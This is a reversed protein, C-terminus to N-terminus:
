DRKELMAELKGLGNVGARNERTWRVARTVSGAMGMALRKAVWQNLVGTRKRILAAVLAKEAVWKGRGSLLDPSEPLGLATLAAQAITEAESEDHARAEHGRLSGNNRKPRLDAALIALIEKGFSPEGLYWGERLEKLSDDTVATQSDKARAELYGAYAKAGRRDDALQFARLVRGRDLWVPVHAGGYAPFSSWQWSQLRRNTLGGVWGARVPNLHIYDAVIKFYSGDREEGNVVVAKYRGQFVHGRRDRRRNWNQSFVGLLWKMGIVLNPEPTELLLHFHNKMQVWAHVRWGCRTCARELLRLWVLRDTDSEFVDKGGDGRAMVHYVAGGAEYRLPRAM